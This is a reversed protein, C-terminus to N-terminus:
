HNDLIGQCGSRRCARRRQLHQQHASQHKAKNDPVARGDAGAHAWVTEDELMVDLCVVEDPQYVVIENGGSIALAKTKPAIESM